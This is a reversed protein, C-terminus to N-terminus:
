SWATVATFSSDDRFGATGDDAGLRARWGSHRLYRGDAARLSYGNPAALGTM